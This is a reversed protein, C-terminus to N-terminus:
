DALAPHTVRDVCYIHVLAGPAATPATTRRRVHPIDSRGCVWKVVRDADEPRCAWFAYSTKREAHGWGSLCSDRGGIFVTHTRTQSPTRDDKFAPYDPSENM